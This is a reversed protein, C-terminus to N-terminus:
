VPERNGATTQAATTIAARPNARHVREAFLVRVVDVGGGISSVDLAVIAAEGVMVTGGDGVGSATATVGLGLTGSLVAVAVAVEAGRFSFAGAVLFLRGQCTQISSNTWLKM